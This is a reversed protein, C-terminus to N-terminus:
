LASSFIESASFLISINIDTIFNWNFIICIDPKPISNSVQRAHPQWKPSSFMYKEAEVPPTTQAFHLSIRCKLVIICWLIRSKKFASTWNSKSKLDSYSSFAVSFTQVTQKSRKFSYMFRCEDFFNLDM